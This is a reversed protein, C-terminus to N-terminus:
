RCTAKATSKRLMALDDEHARVIDAVMARVQPDKSCGSQRLAAIQDALIPRLKKAIRCEEAVLRPSEGQKEIRKIVRNFRTTLKETERSMLQSIERACDAHAGAPLLVAALAFSCALRVLMVDNEL